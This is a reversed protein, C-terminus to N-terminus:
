AVATALARRIVAQQERWQAPTAAGLVVGPRRGEVLCALEVYPAGTSTVYSDRVCQARGSRLLMPGAGLVRVARDGESREHRPRFSAWNSLTEAGQRPTLNLYGVIRGGTDRAVASLTGRDGALPM